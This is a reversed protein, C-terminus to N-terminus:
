ARPEFVQFNMMPLFDFVQTREYGATQMEADVKEASAFHFPMFLKHLPDPAGDIIAVRGGDALDNKLDSLPSM